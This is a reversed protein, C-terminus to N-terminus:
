AHRAPLVFVLNFNAVISDLHYSRDWRVEVAPYVTDDVLYKKTTERVAVGTCDKFTSHRVRVPTM